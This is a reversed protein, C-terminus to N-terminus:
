GRTDYTPQLINDFMFASCRNGYTLINIATDIYQSNLTNKSPDNDM